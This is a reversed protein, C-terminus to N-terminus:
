SARAAEGPAGDRPPAGATAPAGAPAGAGSSAARRAYQGRGAILAAVLGTWGTQHSAGLGTGDDGHFYEYFHILGQWEPDDHYRAAAGYVPRRGEPGPLFIAILRRRLEDAVQQLTLQQGSGTPCEVTFEDGLFRHYRELAEVVLYNLPFWVPGRWNSNGGFMSTRSEAPEYAITASVGGVTVTFPDGLHRKSLSRLGYPSLLSREDLVEALLRRLNEPSVVSLLVQRGSPSISVQGLEFSGGHEGRRRETFAAYRKRFAAVDRGAERSGEMAVTAMSPIVGVISRYRMVLPEASAGVLRDYFFGDAEDWLGSVTMTRSIESFHELFKTVMGLYARDHQALERAIMLMALCYQAM